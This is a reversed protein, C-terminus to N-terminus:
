KKLQVPHTYAEADHRSRNCKLLQGRASGSDQCTALRPRSEL